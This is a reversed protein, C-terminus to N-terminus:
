AAAPVIAPEHSVEPLWNLKKPLYWNWKGLLKMAAPLLVARVITADILIAAALGLGLEKMEIGSETAFMGFVVVM